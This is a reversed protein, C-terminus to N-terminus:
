RATSRMSLTSATSPVARQSHLQQQLPPRRHAMTLMKPRRPTLAPVLRRQRQLKASWKVERASASTVHRLPSPFFSLFPPCLSPCPRALPSLLLYPTRAISPRSTSASASAPQTASNPPLPTRTRTLRATHRVAHVARDLCTASGM